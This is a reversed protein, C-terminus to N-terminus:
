GFKTLVFFAAVFVLIAFLGAALIQGASLGEETKPEIKKSAPLSAMAVSLPPLIAEAAARLKPNYVEEPTLDNLLQLRVSRELYGFTQNATNVQRFPGPDDFVVLLAGPSVRTVVISVATAQDFVPVPTQSLVRYVRGMPNGENVFSPEDHTEVPLLEEDLNPHREAYERGERIFDGVAVAGTTGELESVKHIREGLPPHIALFNGSLWGIGAAIPNAFYLHSYAPNLRTIVSGAGSIKALARLLGDPYRTLQCADADAQFARARNVATRLLVTFLPAVLFLYLGVPALLFELMGFRRGRRHDQRLERKFLLYPVRLFLVISAVITNLRTDYNGIHSLEHAFVGELERKDFLKLAGRTVVVVAHQPDMGAAFANPLGAEIVYLKPWPLGAAIALNELLHRAEIEELGAPRAGVLAMLKATPSAGIGWFLIGLVVLLGASIVCALKVRLVSDELKPGRLDRRQQALRREIAARTEPSVDTENRLYDEEWQIEARNGRLHPSVYTVVGTSVLYSIGLIFPLVAAVTLVGLIWAARRNRVVRNYVLVPQSPPAATM